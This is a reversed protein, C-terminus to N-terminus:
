DDAEVSVSRWRDQYDSGDPNVTVGLRVCDAMTSWSCLSFRAPAFEGAPNKGAKWRAHLCGWRAGAGGHRYAGEQTWLDAPDVAIGAADLVAALRLRLRGPKQQSM